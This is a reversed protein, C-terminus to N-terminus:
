PQLYGTASYIQYTRILFNKRYVPLYEPLSLSTFHGQVASEDQDDHLLYVGNQGELGKPWGWLNFQSFRAREKDVCVPITEHTYYILEAAAQHSQVLIIKTDPRKELVAGIERWGWFWNTADTYALKPFYNALPLVTFRAHLLTLGSLLFSLLVAGTLLGRRLRSGELYYAAAAISMSVYAMAPWNAEGLKKLSSYGFFLVIPLSTIALFLMRKDRRFFFVGAAWVGLFWVFPSAVLLQGGIYDVIHSFKYSSGGMGHSLQFAFSVWEHAHNWIIVPSFIVLAVLSALYPHVTSLWQRDESFLLYALLAPGLLVCTYKSLLAAGFMVGLVYWWAAKGTKIIRWFSWLCATWFLFAPVDPSIIISGAMTVPYVNLLIVGAAAIDDRDFLDKALFWLLFSCGVSVFLAPLRVWFEAQSFFTALKILYAIMPPHDFYSLALHRSWLWYYAEDPHLPLTAATYARWLTLALVFFITFPRNLFRNNKM